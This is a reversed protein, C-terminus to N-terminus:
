DPPRSARWALDRNYAFRIHLSGKIDPRTEADLKKALEEVSLKPHTIMNILHLHSGHEWHNNYEDTDRQDFYFFHWHGPWELPMFLHGNFLRREGFMQGIKNTFKKADKTLKGPPNATIAAFDKDTPNLHEPHHHKFFPIHGIPIAKAQCAIILNALDTKTIVATRCHVVLDSKKAINFITLLSNLTDDGTM